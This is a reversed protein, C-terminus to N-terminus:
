LAFTIHAMGRFQMKTQGSAYDQSLPDQLNFGATIKNFSFEIGAVASVAWGGTYQVKEGSLNNGATNEYLVGANPSMAMKGFRLRYFALSTATLKNGYKYDSSNATNMKYNVTTSVGFRNFRFIYLANLIFDTSGTGIQSNIDAVTTNSDSPNVRFGGTPLKVGAGIWLENEVIDNQNTSKKTHLLLYNGLLTIDGLGSKSSPGDDDMQKNYYYPIFGLVQWRKGINWGGWAEITNYYNHSYESPDNALVTHFQSYHYRLGIFTSKFNPLLGLYLNSGGCGCIDCAYSSASIFMLLIFIIKKM